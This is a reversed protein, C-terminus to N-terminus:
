SDSVPDKKRGCGAAPSRIGCGNTGRSCGCDPSRAHGSGGEGLGPDLGQSRPLAGVVDPVALEPAKADPHQGGAAFTEEYVALMAPFANPLDDAVGPGHGDDPRPEACGRNEGRDAPALLRGAVGRVREELGDGLGHEPAVFPDPLRCRELHVPAIQASLDQRVEGPRCIASMSRRSTALQNAERRAVGAAASREMGTSETMMLSASAMPRRSPPSWGRCPCGVGGGCPALASGTRRRAGDVSRLERRTHLGSAEEPRRWGGGAPQRAAALAFDQREMPGVVALSM